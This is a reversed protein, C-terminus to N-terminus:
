PKKHTQKVINKALKQYCTDKQEAECLVMEVHFLTESGKERMVTFELSVIHLRGQTVSKLLTELSTVSNISYFSNM